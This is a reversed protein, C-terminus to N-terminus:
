AAQRTPKGADLVGRLRAANAVIKQQAADVDRLQISGIRQLRAELTKADHRNLMRYFQKMFEPSAGALALLVTQSDTSSLLHALATAPLLLIQEFEWQILVREAAIDKPNATNAGDRRFPLIDGDDGGASRLTRETSDAHNSPTAQSWHLQDGAARGRSTQGQAQGQAETPMPQPITDGLLEAWDSRLEPPAAALLSKIRRSNQLESQIQHQYEHLRQSLHEDITQMAEPDIEQLGSLRLLVERRTETPLHQLVEVAAVPALQSIVVATVAAREERVFRVLAATSLRTWAARSAPEGSMSQEGDGESTHGAHNLGRGDAMPQGTAYADSSGEVAARGSSSQVQDGQNSSRVVSRDGTPSWEVSARELSSREISSREVSTREVSSMASRQFESLIRRKEDASVDGLRSALLRIQRATDTPLQLLIQRAAASDVSSILIAIQRLRDPMTAATM